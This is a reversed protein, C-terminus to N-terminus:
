IKISKPTGFNGGFGDLIPSRSQDPGVKSRELSWFRELTSQRDIKSEWFSIKQDGLALKNVGIDHKKIGILSRSICLKM